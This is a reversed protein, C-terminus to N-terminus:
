PSVTLTGKMNDHGPVTCIFDYDGAALNLEVRRAKLAPIDLDIGEDEITFTHRIGDKNDIWVGGGSAAISLDNPGFEVREAVVLLDDPQAVDSDTAASVVMSTAALSVFVVAAAFVIRRTPPQTASRWTSVGAVIAVVSGVVALLTLIFAPASDLHSLEDITAPANGFLTLAGIVGYALGLGRREGRLFPIMGAYVVGIVLVPPILVRASLHVLIVWVVITIASGRAVRMWASTPDHTKSDPRLEITKTM